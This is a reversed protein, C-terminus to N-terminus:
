KAVSRTWQDTWDAVDADSYNIRLIDSMDAKYMSVSIADSTFASVAQKNVPIVGM